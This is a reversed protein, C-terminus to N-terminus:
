NTSDRLKRLTDWRPDMPNGDEDTLAGFQFPIDEDEAGPAIRRTPLALLLTDRVSETLDLPRGPDPLPRVDDDSDDDTTYQDLREPLVFLVAYSGQVPQQFPVLTRDCELTAMARATFAVLDRDEEHDIQVDVVIEDFMEADLGLDDPAPTLTQQHLGPKLSTIDIGLM